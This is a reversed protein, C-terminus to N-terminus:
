SPIEKETGSNNDRQSYFVGWETETERERNRNMLRIPGDERPHAM